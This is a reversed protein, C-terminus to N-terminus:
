ERPEGNEGYSNLDTKDPFFFNNDYKVTLSKDFLVYLLNHIIEHNLSRFIVTENDELGLYISTEFSSIWFHARSFPKDRESRIPIGIKIETEM